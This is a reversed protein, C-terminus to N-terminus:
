TIKIGGMQVYPKAEVMRIRAAFFYSVSGNKTNGSFYLKHRKKEIFIQRYLM